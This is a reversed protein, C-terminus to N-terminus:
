LSYSIEDPLENVDDREYPFYASLKEGIMIVAEVVGDAFRDEKFHTTMPAIVDEWFHEPVKENIGRDGLIAFRHSALGMFIMVGNRDETQTMGIKEFIEKGHEMFDERVKRQLHIRIEGSTKLQKFKLYLDELHMQNTQIMPWKLGGMEYAIINQPDECAALISKKCQPNVWTFNEERCFAVLNDIYKDFTLLEEFSYSDCSNCSNRSM